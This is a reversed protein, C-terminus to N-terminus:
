RRGADLVEGIGWVLGELGEPRPEMVREEMAM